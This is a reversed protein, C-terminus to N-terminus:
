NNFLYTTMSKLILTEYNFWIGYFWDRIIKKIKDITSLNKNYVMLFQSKKKLKKIYESSNM